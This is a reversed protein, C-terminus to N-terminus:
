DSSPAKQRWGGVRPMKSSHIINISCIYLLQVTRNETRTQRKSSKQWNILHRSDVKLGIISEIESSIFRVCKNIEQTVDRSQALFSCVFQTLDAGLSRMKIHLNRSLPCTFCCFSKSITNKTTIFLAKFVHKVMDNCFM